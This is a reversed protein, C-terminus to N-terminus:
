EDDISPCDIEHITGNLAAVPLGYCYKLKDKPAQEAHGEGVDVITDIVSAVLL